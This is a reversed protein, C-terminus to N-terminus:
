SSQAPMNIAEPKYSNTCPKAQTCLSAFIKACCLLRCIGGLADRCMRSPSGLPLAGLLKGETVSHVSLTRSPLCSGLAMLRSSHSVDTAKLSAVYNVAQNTPVKAPHSRHSPIISPCFSRCVSMDAPLHAYKGLLNCPFGCVPSAQPWQLLNGCVYM